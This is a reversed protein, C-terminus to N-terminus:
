PVDELPMTLDVDHDFPIFGHTDDEAVDYPKDAGATATSHRVLGLMNGASMTYVADDGLAATIWKDFVRTLRDM